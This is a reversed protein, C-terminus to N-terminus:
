KRPDPSIGPSRALALCHKQHTPSPRLPSCSVPAQNLTRLNFAPPTPWPWNVPSFHRRRWRRSQGVSGSAHPDSAPCARHQRLRPLRLLTYPSRALTLCHKQHTPPRVSCVAHGSIAAHRLDICASGPSQWSVLSVHRGEALAPSTLRVPAQTPAAQVLGPSADIAQRPRAFGRPRGQRKM